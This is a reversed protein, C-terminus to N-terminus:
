RKITAILERYKTAIDEVCSGVAISWAWKSYKYLWIILTKVTLTTRQTFNGKNLQIEHYNWTSLTRVFFGLLSILCSSPKSEKFSIFSVKSASMHELSMANLAIFANMNSSLTRVWIELLKFEQILLQPAAYTWQNNYKRDYIGISVNKM